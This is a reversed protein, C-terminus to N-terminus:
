LSPKLVMSRLAFTAAFYGSRKMTLPANSGRSPSCASSYMWKM